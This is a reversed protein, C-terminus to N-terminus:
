ECQRYVTTIGSYYTCAPSSCGSPSHVEVILGAGNISGNQTLYSLNLPRWATCAIGSSQSYPGGLDNSLHNQDLLQYSFSNQFSSSQKCLRWSTTAGSLPRLELCLTPSGSAAPNDYCSAGDPSAVYEVTCPPSIDSSDSDGDAESDAATGAESHPPPDASDTFGADPAEHFCDPAWESWNGTGLCTKSSVTYGDPCIALNYIGKQCTATPIEAPTAAEPSGPLAYGGGLPCEEGEQPICTPVAQCSHDTESCYYGNSCSTTTCFTTTTGGHQQYAMVLWKALEARHVPDAPYFKKNGNGAILGKQWALYVYPAYWTYPAVDKFHSLLNGALPAAAQWIWTDYTALFEPSYFAAVVMKIAEARTIEQDPCFNHGYDTCSHAANIVPTDRPAQTLTNIYPFDQDSPPVDYFYDTAGMAITELSAAVKILRAAARRTVVKDVGFSSDYEGFHWGQRRTEQAYPESWQWTAYQAPPGTFESFQGYLFAEPDLYRALQSPQNYVYGQGYVQWPTNKITNQLEAANAWRKISLHLHTPWYPTGGEKAIPEGAPVGECANYRRSTLNTDPQVFLHHYHFTLIEESHRNTRTALIMSEGWGQFSGSEHSVIVLGDQIAFIDNQGGQAGLPHLDLGDHGYYIKQGQCAPSSGSPQGNGVQCWGDAKSNNYHQTIRMDEMPMHLDTFDGVPIESLTFDTCFGSGIIEGAWAQLSTLWLCFCCLLALTYRSM